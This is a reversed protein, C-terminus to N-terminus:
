IYERHLSSFLNIFVDFMSNLPYSISIIPWMYIWRQLIDESIKPITLHRSTLAWTSSISNNWSLNTRIKICCCLFNWMLSPLDQAKNQAIFLTYKEINNYSIVFLIWHWVKLLPLCWRLEEKDLILEVVDFFMELNPSAWKAFLLLCLM